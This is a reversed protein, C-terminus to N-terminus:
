SIGQYQTKPTTQRAKQNNMRLINQQLPFEDTQSM